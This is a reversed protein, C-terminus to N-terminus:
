VNLTRVVELIDLCMMPTESALTVEIGFFRADGM